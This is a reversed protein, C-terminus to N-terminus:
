RHNSIDQMKKHFRKRGTLAYMAVVAFSLYGYIVGDNDMCCRRVCILQPDSRELLKMIHNLRIHMAVGDLMEGLLSYCGKELNEYWFRPARQLQVFIKNLLCPPCNGNLLKKTNEGTPDNERIMTVTERPLIRWLFEEPTELMDMMVAEDLDVTIKETPLSLRRELAEAWQVSNQTLLDYLDLFCLDGVREDTQQTRDYRNKLEPFDRVIEQILYVPSHFKELFEGLRHVQSASLTEGEATEDDRVQQLLTNLNMIGVVPDFKVKKLSIAYPKLPKKRKDSELPTGLKNAANKRLTEIKNDDVTLFMIYLSFDALKPEQDIRESTTRLCKEVKEPECNSTVQVMVGRTEDLLDFGPANVKKELKLKYGYLLNMLDRIVVEAGKSEGNDGERGELEVEASLATFYKTLRKRLIPLTETSVM